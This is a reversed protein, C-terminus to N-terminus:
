AAQIVLLEVQGIEVQYCDENGKMPLLITTSCLLAEKTRKFSAYDMADMFVSCSTGTQQIVGHHVRQLRPHTHSRSHRSHSHSRCHQTRTHIHHTWVLQFRHRHGGCASSPMQRTLGLEKACMRHGQAKLTWGLTHLIVNGCNPFPATSIQAPLM